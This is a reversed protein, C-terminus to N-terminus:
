TILNRKAELLNYTVTACNQYLVKKEKQSFMSLHKDLTKHSTWAKGDKVFKPPKSGTAFLKTVNDQIKYVFM